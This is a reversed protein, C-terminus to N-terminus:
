RHATPSPQRVARPVIPLGRFSQQSSMSPKWSMTLPAFPKWACSQTQRNWHAIRSVNERVRAVIQYERQVAVANLATPADMERPSPRRPSLCSTSSCAECLARSPAPLRAWPSVDVLLVQVLLHDGEVEVLVDVELRQPLWHRWGAAAQAALPRRLHGGQHRLVTLAAATGLFSPVARGRSARLRQRTHANDYRRCTGCSACM